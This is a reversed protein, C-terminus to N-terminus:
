EMQWAINRLIMLVDEETNIIMSSIQEGVRPDDNIGSIVIERRNWSTFTEDNAVGDESQLSDPIQSRYIRITERPM